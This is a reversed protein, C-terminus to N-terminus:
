CNSIVQQPNQNQLVQTQQQNTVPKNVVLQPQSTIPQSPARVLGYNNNVPIGNSSAHAAVAANYYEAYNNMDNSTVPPAAPQTSITLSSSAATTQSSSTSSSSTSSSSTSSSSSSSPASSSSSSSSQSKLTAAQGGKMHSMQQSNYYTNSQNQENKNKNRYNTNNLYQVQKNTSNQHLIQQQPGPSNLGAAMAYFYQINQGNVYQGPTQQQQLQQGPQPTQITLQNIIQNRNQQQNFQSFRYNSNNYNRQNNQRYEKKNFTVTDNVSSDINNSENSYNRSLRNFNQKVPVTNNNNNDQQIDAKLLDNQEFQEVSSTTAIEDTDNDTPSQRDNLHLPPTPSMLNLAHGNNPSM